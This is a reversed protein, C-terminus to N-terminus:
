PPVQLQYPETPSTRPVTEACAPVQDFLAPPALSGQRAWYAVEFEAPTLYDLASHIRKTQYVDEIFHGIEWGIEAGWESKQGASRPKGVVFGFSGKSLSSLCDEALRNWAAVAFWDTDEQRQGSEDTWARDVALSFTMGQTGSLAHTM